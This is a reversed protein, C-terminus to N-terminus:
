YERLHNLNIHEVQNVSLEICLSSDVTLILLDPIELKILAADTLGLRSFALEDLVSKSSVYEERLQQIQDAFQEFLPRRYHKLGQALLNSVEALINPLTVRKRSPSMLVQLLEFDSDDFENAIRKHQSILGVGVNGVIELLQVNTDALLTSRAVLAMKDELLSM